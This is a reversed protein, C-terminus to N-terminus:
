VRDLAIKCRADLQLVQNYLKKAQLKKGHRWYIDARKLMDNIRKQKDFDAAAINEKVFETGCFTCIYRGDEEILKNGGCAVCRLMKM